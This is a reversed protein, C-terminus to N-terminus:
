IDEPVNPLPGLWLSACYDDVPSANIRMGTPMFYPGDTGMRFVTGSVLRKDEADWMLYLGFQTPLDSTWKM